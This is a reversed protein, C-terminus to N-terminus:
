DMVKEILSLANQATILLDPNNVEEFQLESTGCPDQVPKFLCAMKRQSPEVTECSVISEKFYKRAFKYRSEMAHIIGLNYQPLAREQLPIEESEKEIRLIKNLLRKGKSLQRNSLYLYALNNGWTIM